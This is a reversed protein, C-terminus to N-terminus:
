WVSLTQHTSGNTIKHYSFIIVPWVFGLGL